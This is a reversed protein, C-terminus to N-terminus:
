NKMNNTVRNWIDNYRKLLEEDEIFFYMWKTRLKKGICKNKSSNYYINLKTAM